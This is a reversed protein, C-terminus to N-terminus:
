KRWCLAIISFTMHLFVSFGVPIIDAAFDKESQQKHNRQQQGNENRKLLVGLVHTVNKRSDRYQKKNQENRDHDSVRFECFRGVGNQFQNVFCINEVAAVVYDYPQFVYVFDLHFEVRVLVSVGIGVPRQFKHRSAFNVNHFANVARVFDFVRQKCQFFVCPLQQWGTNRNCFKVFSSRSLVFRGFRGAEVTKQHLM